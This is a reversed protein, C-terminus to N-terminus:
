SAKKLHVVAARIKNAAKKLHAKKVRIKAKKGLM